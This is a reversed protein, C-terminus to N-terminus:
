VTFSSVACLVVLGENAPRQGRSGRRKGPSLLVREGTVGPPEQLLQSAQHRRGWEPGLSPVPSVPAPLAAHGAGPLLGPCAAAGWVRGLSSSCRPGEPGCRSHREVQSRALVRYRMRWMVARRPSGPLHQGPNQPGNRRVIPCSSPTRSRSERRGDSAPQRAPARTTSTDPTPSLEWTHPRPLKHSFCRTM